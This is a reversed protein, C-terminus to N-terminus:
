GYTMPNPDRTLAAWTGNAVFGNTGNPIRGVVTAADYLPGNPETQVKGAPTGGFGVATVRRSDGEAWLHEPFVNGFVQAFFAAPTNSFSIPSGGVAPFEITNGVVKIIGINAGRVTAFGANPQSDIRNGASRFENRIFQLERHNGYEVYYLADYGQITNNKVIVLGIDEGTQLNAFTAQLGNDTPLTSNIAINDHIFIRDVVGSIDAFTPWNQVDNNYIHVESTALITTLPPTLPGIMSKLNFARADGRAYGPGIIRNSFIHVNRAGCRFGYFERSVGNFSCEIDNNYYWVNEAGYLSQYEYDCGRIINDHIRVGKTRQQGNADTRSWDSGYVISPATMNLFENEAIEIDVVPNGQRNTFIGGAILVGAASVQAHTTLLDEFIFGKVSSGSGNLHFMGGGGVNDGSTRARGVAHIRTGGKVGRLTAAKQGWEVMCAVTYTGVGFHLTYAAPMLNSIYTLTRSQYAQLTGGKGDPINFLKESDVFGDVVGWWAVYYTSGVISRAWVGAAGSPAAAPAVYLGQDPDASVLASRDGPMWTFKGARGAELLEVAQGPFAATYSALATRTPAQLPLAVGTPLAGALAQVGAYANGASVASAYAEGASTQAAVKAATAEPTVNGTAGTAGTAGRRGVAIKCWRGQQGDAPALFTEDDDAAISLGDWVFLGGLGDHASSGGNVIASAGAQVTIARISRVEDFTDAVAFINGYRPNNIQLTM